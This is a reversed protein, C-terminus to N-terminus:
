VMLVVAILISVGALIFVFRQLMEPIGGSEPPSDSMQMQERFLHRSNLGLSEIAKEIDEATPRFPTAVGDADVSMKDGLPGNMLAQLVSELEWHRAAQHTRLGNMSETSANSMRWAGPADEPPLEAEPAAPPTEVAKEVGLEKQLRNIISLKTPTDSATKLEEVLRALAVSKRGQVGGISAQHHLLSLLAHVPNIRL